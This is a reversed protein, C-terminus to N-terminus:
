DWGSATLLIAFGNNTNNTCELESLLYVEDGAFPSTLETPGTGDDAMCFSENSIQLENQFTGADDEFTSAQFNFVQTSSPSAESSCSALCSAPSAGGTCSTSYADVLCSPAGGSTLSWLEAQNSAYGDPVPRFTFTQAATNNCTTIDLPTGFTQDDAVTDLCDLTEGYLNYIMNFSYEL